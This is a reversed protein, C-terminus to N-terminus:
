VAAAAATMQSANAATVVGTEPTRFVPAIGRTRAEDIQARTGEAPPPTPAAGAKGVGPQPLIEDHWGAVRAENARRHSEIAYDDLETRSLQWREAILAASEVQHPIAYRALIDPHLGDFGRFEGKGLTLDLFMPVRSMSE